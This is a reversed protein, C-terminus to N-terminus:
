TMYCMLVYWAPQTRLERPFYMRLGYLLYDRLDVDPNPKALMQSARSAKKFEKEYKYYSAEAEEESQFGGRKSYKVSGDPQLLKVRTFGHTEKTFPM